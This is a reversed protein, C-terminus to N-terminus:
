TNNVIIEIDYWVNNIIIDIDAINNLWFQQISIMKIDATNNM